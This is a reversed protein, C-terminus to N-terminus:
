PSGFQIHYTLSTRQLSRCSANNSVCGCQHAWGVPLYLPLVRAVAFHSFQYTCLLTKQCISLNYIFSAADFTFDPLEYKDPFPASLFTLLLTTM